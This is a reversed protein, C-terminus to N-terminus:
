RGYSTKSRGLFERLSNGIWAAGYPHEWQHLRRSSNSIVHNFKHKNANDLQKFM